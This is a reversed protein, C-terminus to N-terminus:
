TDYEAVQPRNVICACIRGKLFREQFLVCRINGFFGSGSWEVTSLLLLSFSRAMVNRKQIKFNLRLIYWHCSSPYMNCVGLSVFIWIREHIFLCIKIYIAFSKLLIGLHKKLHGYKSIKMELLLSTNEAVVKINGFVSFGKVIVRIYIEM